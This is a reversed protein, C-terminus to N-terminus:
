VALIRGGPSFAVAHVEGTPGALTALPQTAQPHTAQPHTALPHGQGPDALNWLRVTGDASTGALLDGDPSFALSYITSDPGTLTSALRRPRAPDSINWLLVTKAEGAAALIKGDPSLVAAYLPDASAPLLPAGLQVPHGARAVNWLRLMGDSAAVALVRRDPTLAVSEVIGGTDAFRAADPTGSSELLSSRAQVTRTIRYAALSLQSALSPDQVRAQDAEIAVERSEANDRAVTASNRAGAAAERQQLAFASLGCTAVVLATLTAVLRRLRQTRLREAQRRETDAAASAAVFEDALRSLSARNDPDAAFDSAVALPSGRLLAWPDRGSEAWAQAADGIRRGTRLDARGADIWSRLRPWATLLADHSIQATGADVTILRAAVFRHLLDDAPMQGAPWDHLESVRQTSRTEPVNDGVHVLRLFLRRATDRQAPQLGAYVDEATKAIAQVIGGTAQYDAVTLRGGKSHQWTALLAHSLLPLAGPEHAAGPEGGRPALDALMVEVLGDAVDLRALRAPEVIACRVEDRSMPGLVVQRDQLARSLPPYRLAHDYFDARLALVVVARSALACVAAIFAERQDEDACDTFVAELQDVVVIAQGPSGPLLAAADRPDARLAAEIAEPAQPQAALGALQAALDALPDAAPTFLAVPGGPAQAQQLAPILGARLLSSKGSGSPGVVVLPDQQGPETALTVLRATIQTRGFFWRADEPQFSALGRYPPRATAGRRGPPRRARALALAWQRARDPDTEGCARLIDALGPQGAPPLHRGAFYDGVTSPPLGSARAVERITLAGRLRTLERGFDQQTAM